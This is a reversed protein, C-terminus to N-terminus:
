APSAIPRATGCEPCPRETPLGALDYRCTSCVSPNRRRRISCFTMVLLLTAPVPWLVARFDSRAPSSWYEYLTGFRCGDLFIGYGPQTDLTNRSVRLNGSTTRDISWEHRTKVNGVRHILVVGNCFIVACGSPVREEWTPFRMLIYWYSLVFFTISAATITWGAVLLAFRLRARRSRSAM